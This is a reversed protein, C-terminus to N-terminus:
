DRQISRIYAVAVAGREAQARMEANPEVGVVAAACRTWILTSLGSGSVADPHSAHSNWNGVCLAARAADYIIVLNEPM